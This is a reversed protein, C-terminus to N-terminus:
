ADSGVESVCLTLRDGPKLKEYHEKRLPFTAMEAPRLSLYGRSALVETGRLLTVKSVSLPKGARFWLVPPEDAGLLIRQPIVLRVDRCPEVFAESREVGWNAVSAAGATSASVVVHDVLDWIGAGNGVVYVHPIETEFFQNVTVSNTYPLITLGMQRLLEVEPLLGVSLVLTDVEYVKETGAVPMGNEIKAVKVAEVRERGMVEIVSHSLLLPIGFDKLCQQVNRSLGGPFPMLEAVAEVKAGELTFRRAMILGIDGSGLIFIRKGVEYGQINTMYQATGATYIGAPRSGPIAIAGRPRERAGVAFIVADPKLLSIGEARSILLSRDPYAETVMSQLWVEVGIAEVERGLLEAFEPGTLDQGFYSLGFGSHICQPLVGGLREAREILVVKLAGAKKASIAAAMGAPGGGVVAVTM